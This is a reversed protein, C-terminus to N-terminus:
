RGEKAREKGRPRNLVADLTSCSQSGSTRIKIKKLKDILKNLQARILGAPVVPQSLGQSTSLGSM